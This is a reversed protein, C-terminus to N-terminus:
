QPSLLRTKEYLFHFGIKRMNALAVSPGAPTDPDNEVHAIRCGRDRAVYFREIAIAKQLGRSRHSELTASFGCWMLDGTLFMAAGAVLEQGDYVGLHHFGPAGFGASFWPSLMRPASRVARHLRSWDDAQHADLMVVQVGDTRGPLDDLYRWSKVITPEADEFGRKHLQNVLDPPTTDPVLEFTFRTQDHAAYFGLIDDIDEPSPSNGTGLGIVRNFGAFNLATMATLPVIHQDDSVAGLPNDPIRAAAAAFTRWMEAEHGELTAALVSSDNSM